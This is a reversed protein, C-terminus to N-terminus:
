SKHRPAPAAVEEEAEESDRRMSPNGLVKATTTRVRKKKDHGAAEDESEIAFKM